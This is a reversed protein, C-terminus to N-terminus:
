DKKTRILDALTLSGSGASRPTLREEQEARVKEKLVVGLERQLKKILKEDPRMTGSEIKSIITQKENLKMALEKQTMGSKARANRIRAPYDDVLEEKDGDEYVDRPKYRRERQELRQGIIPRPGEDEDPRKKAENGFKACETCVELLVGEIVVKKCFTVDKGCLECVM